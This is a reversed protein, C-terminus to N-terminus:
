RRVETEPSRDAPPHDAADTALTMMRELVAAREAPELVDLDVLEALWLGDCALRLLTALTPDATSTRAMRQFEAFAQRFPAVAEPYEFAAAMLATDLHTDPAGDLSAIYSATLGHELHREHHREIASRVEAVRAEAMAEILARKNPFHYLLGGKSVGAARAVSELTLGRVGDRHVVDGAVRLLRERTESM